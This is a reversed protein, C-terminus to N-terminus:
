LAQQIQGSLFGRYHLFRSIRAKDKLQQASVSAFRKQRVATAVANWDPDNRNVSQVILEDHIGRLRLEQEIRTPGYGRSRRERVFMEAFREDSQYASAQLYVLVAQIEPSSSPLSFRSALKGTLEQASHERRGLLLLAAVRLKSALDSM